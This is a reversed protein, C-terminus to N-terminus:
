TTVSAQLSAKAVSMICVTGTRAALPGSGLHWRGRGAARPELFGRSGPEAEGPDAEETDNLISTM